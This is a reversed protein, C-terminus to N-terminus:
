SILINSCVLDLALINHRMYTAVWRHTSYAVFPAVFIDIAYHVRNCMLLIGMLWTLSLYLINYDCYITCLCMLATHGSFFLDREFIPHTRNMIKDVLHDQLPIIDHPPYLPMLYLSMSKIFLVFIMDVWLLEFIQWTNRYLVSACSFLEILMILRSCDIRPCIPLIPDILRVGMPRTETWPICVMSFLLSALYCCPIIFM